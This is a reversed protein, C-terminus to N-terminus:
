PVLEELCQHSKQLWLAPRSTAFMGWWDTDKRKKCIRSFHPFFLKLCQEAIIPLTTMPEKYLFSLFSPAM